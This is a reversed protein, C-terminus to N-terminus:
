DYNLNNLTIFQNVSVQWVQWVQSVQNVQRFISAFKTPKPATEEKYANLKIQFKLFFTHNKKNNRPM